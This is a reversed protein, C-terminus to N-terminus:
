DRSYLVYLIWIAESGVLPTSQCPVVDDASLGEGDGVISYGSIMIFIPTADESCYDSQNWTPSYTNDRHSHAIDRQRIESILIDPWCSSTMTITFVMGAGNICMKSVRWGLVAMSILADLPLLPLGLEIKYRHDSHVVASSYYGILWASIRWHTCCLRWTLASSAIGDM